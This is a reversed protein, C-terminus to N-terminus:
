SPAPRDAHRLWFAHTVRESASILVVSTGPGERLVWARAAAAAQGASAALSEGFVASRHLVRADQAVPHSRLPVELGEPRGFRRPVDLVIGACPGHGRALETFGDLVSALDKEGKGAAADLRRQAHGCLLVEAPEDPSALLLYAAGEELREDHGEQQWAAEVLPTCPAEVGGALLWRDSGALLRGYALALAQAGATRDTTVTKAYGELGLHITIQGQPAAPFWATALYPNVAAPGSRWLADLQPETFTWGALVNGTLVGCSRRAAEPLEAAQLAQRAAASAALSFRDVKRVERRALGSAVALDGLASSPPSDTPEGLLLRQFFEEGSEAQPGFVAASVVAVEGITSHLM